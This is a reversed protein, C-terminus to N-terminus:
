TIIRNTYKLIDRIKLSLNLLVSNHGQPLWKDENGYSFNKNTYLLYNKAAPLICLVAVWIDLVCVYVYMYLCSHIALSYLITTLLISGPM